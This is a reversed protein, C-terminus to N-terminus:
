FTIFVELKFLNSILYNMVTVYQSISALPYVICDTIIIVASLLHRSLWLVRTYNGYVTVNTVKM